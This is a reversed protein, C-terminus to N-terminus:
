VGVVVAASNVIQQCNVWIYNYNYMSKGLSSVLLRSSKYKKSFTSIKLKM